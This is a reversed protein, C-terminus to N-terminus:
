NLFELWYAIRERLYAGSQFGSLIEVSKGELVFALAPASKIGLLLAKDLDTFINNNNVPIGLDIEIDSLIEKQSDCISCSPSFFYEIKMEISM